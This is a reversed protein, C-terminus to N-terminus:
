CQRPEGSKSAPSRMFHLARDFHWGFNGVVKGSVREVLQLNDKHLTSPYTHTFSNYLAGALTKYNKGKDSRLNPNGHYTQGRGFTKERGGIETV